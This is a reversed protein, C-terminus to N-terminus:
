HNRDSSLTNEPLNQPEPTIEYLFHIASSRAPKLGPVEFAYSILWLKKGLRNAESQLRSAVKVIDRSESFAYVVTTELPLPTLWFDRWRTQINQKRLSLLRSIIVLIPNIEFGVAKAGRMVAQRLVVGDGSGIDVLLDGEGLAYLEDFALAVDRRRSPLYPAGRLVTLVFLAVVVGAIAYVVSM